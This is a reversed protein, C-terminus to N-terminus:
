HALLLPVPPESILSRTVGGFLRQRLRSHGYAGQVLMTAGVRMLEERIVADISQGGDGREIIEAEIGHRALWRAADTARFDSPKEEVTLIHVAAAKHLLSVSGRLAAAAERSGDWAVLVPGTVDIGRMDPGVALVPAAAEITVDGTMALAMGPSNGIQGASMVVVDALRSAEALREAADGDRAMWDWQVGEAKLRAEVKERAARRQDEVADIIATVPFGSIGNDGLAYAAFPTVQLCNIHSGFMRALDFAAQLRAEQGADDEIHLLITKM